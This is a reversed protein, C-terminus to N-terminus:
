DFEGKNYDDIFEDYVLEITKWRLGCRECKRVRIMGIEDQLPRSDVVRSREGCQRCYCAITYVKHYKKM